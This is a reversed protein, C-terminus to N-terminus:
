QGTLDIGGRCLPGLGLALVSRLDRFDGTRVRNTEAVVRQVLAHEFEGRLEIRELIALASFRLQPDLIAIGPFGDGAGTDRLLVVLVIALVLGPRRMEPHLFPVLAARHGIAHRCESAHRRVLAADAGIGNAFALDDHGREGTVGILVATELGIEDGIELGLIGVQEEERAILNVVMHVVQAGPQEEAALEALDDLIARHDANGVVVVDALAVEPAGAALHGRVGGAIVATIEHRDFVHLGDLAGLRPMQGVRHIGRGDLAADADIEGHQVPAADAEGNEFVALELGAWVTRQLELGLERRTRVPHGVGVVIGLRQVQGAQLQQPRPLLLEELRPTLVPSAGVELHHQGLGDEAVRRVNRLAVTQQGIEIGVAPRLGAPLARHVQHATAERKMDAAVLMEAAHCLITQVVPAIGTDGEAHRRNHIVIWAFPQREIRRHTGHFAREGIEAVVRLTEPVLDGHESVGIRRGKGRGQRIEGGAGATMTQHAEVFRRAPDGHFAPRAPHVDGLRARLLIGAPGDRDILQVVVAAFAHGPQRFDLGRGADGSRHHLHHILVAPLHNVGQACPGRAKLRPNKGLAGVGDSDPFRGGPHLNQFALAAGSRSDRDSIFRARDRGGRRCRGRSRRRVANTRSAAPSAAAAGGVTTEMSPSRKKM